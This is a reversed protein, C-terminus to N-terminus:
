PTPLPNPRNVRILQGALDPVAKVAAHIRAALAPFDLDEKCAIIGAHVAGAKHLRFYDKRNHTLVARGLATAR